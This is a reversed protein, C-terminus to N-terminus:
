EVSNSTQVPPFHVDQCKPCLMLDGQTLKVMIYKYTKLAFGRRCAKADLCRFYIAGVDRM